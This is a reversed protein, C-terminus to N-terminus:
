KRIALMVIDEAEIQPTRIFFLELSRGQRHKAIRFPPLIPRLMVAFTILHRAGGGAPDAAHGDGLEIVEKDVEILPTSKALHSPDDVVAVLLMRETRNLLQYAVEVFKHLFSSPNPMQIPRTEKRVHPRLFTITGAVVSNTRHAVRTHEEVGDDDVRVGAALWVM